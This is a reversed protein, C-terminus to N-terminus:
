KVALWVVLGIAGAVVVLIVLICCLKKRSAKQYDRAKELQVNATEVHVAASEVNAEISDIVDGQEHVMNALDRFIENVGVIDSELQRIAREREEIMEISVEEESQIQVGGSSMEGGGGGGGTRDFDILTAGDKYGGMPNADDDDSNNANADGGDDNDDCDVGNDSDCGGWDDSYDGDDNDDVGNDSHCGGWDDSYDGDGDYSYWLNDNSVSPSVGMSAARARSVYDKEREAAVRQIKQFNNLASSFNNTLREIQLKRQRKETYNDGELLILQKLYSNTEKALRQTEKETSG